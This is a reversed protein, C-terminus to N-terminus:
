RHKTTYFVFGVLVLWIVLLSAMFPSIPETGPIGYLAGGVNSPARSVYVWVGLFLGSVFVVFAMLLHEEKVFVAFGAAYLFMQVVVSKFM